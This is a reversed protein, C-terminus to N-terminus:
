VRLPMVIHRYCYTEQDVPAFSFQARVDKLEIWVTRREWVRRSISCTSATSSWACPLVLAIDV